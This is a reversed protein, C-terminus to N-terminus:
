KFYFACSSSQKERSKEATVDLLKLLKEKKEDCQRCIIM